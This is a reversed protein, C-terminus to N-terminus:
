ELKDEGILKFGNENIWKKYRESSNPGEFWGRPNTVDDWPLERRVLKGPCKPCYTLPHHYAVACGKECVYVIRTKTM